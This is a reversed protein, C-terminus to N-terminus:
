FILPYFLSFCETKSAIDVEEFSGNGAKGGICFDTGEGSTSHV